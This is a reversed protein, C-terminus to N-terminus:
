IKVEILEIDVTDKSEIAKGIIAGGIYKDTAVGVGPESSAVIFDGKNVKGYVKVPIRGKLALPQGKAEQNMLFAYSDTIVGAVKTNAYGQAITVEKDGGFMVITGVEYELNTEYIEAM